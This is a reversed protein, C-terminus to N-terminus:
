MIIHTHIRTHIHTHTCLKTKTSRPADSKGTHHVAIGTQCPFTLVFLTTEKALHKNLMVVLKM